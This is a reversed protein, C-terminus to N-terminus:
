FRQVENLFRLMFFIYIYVSLPPRTSTSSSNSTSSHLRHRQVLEDATPDSWLDADIMIAYEVACPGVSFWLYASIAMEQSFLHHILHCFHMWEDLFFHFFAFAILSYFGFACDGRGIMLIRLILYFLYAERM